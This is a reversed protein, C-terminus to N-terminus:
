KSINVSSIIVSEFQFVLYSTSRGGEVAKLEQDTMVQAALSQADLNRLAHLSTPLTGTNASLTDRQETPNEPLNSLDTAKSTTGSLALALAMVLTHFTLSKM